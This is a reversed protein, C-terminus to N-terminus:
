CLERASEVRGDILTQEAPRQLRDDGDPQSRLGVIRDVGEAGEDERQRFPLGDELDGTGVIAQEVDCDGVHVAQAAEDEVAKGLPGLDGFHLGRGDVLARALVDRLWKARWPMPLSVLARRPWPSCRVAPLRATSSCAPPTAPPPAESNHCVTFQGRVELAGRGRVRSQERSLFDCIVPAPLGPYTIMGDEIAHSLDIRARGNSHSTDRAARSRKHPEGVIQENLIRVASVM